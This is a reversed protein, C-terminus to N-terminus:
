KAPKPYTKSLVECKGNYAKNALFQKTAKLVMEFDQRSSVKDLMNLADQLTTEPQQTQPQTPQTYGPPLHSNLGMHVDLGFGWFKAAQKMFSTTAGKYSDGKEQRGAHSGNVWPTAGISFPLDPNYFEIAVIRGRKVIEKGESEIVEEEITWMGAGFAENLRSFLYGGNIDSLGRTAGKLMNKPIETGMIGM